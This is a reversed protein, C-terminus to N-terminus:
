RCRVFRSMGNTYQGAALQKETLELIWRSRCRHFSVRIERGTLLRSCREGLPQRKFAHSIINTDAIVVRDRNVVM